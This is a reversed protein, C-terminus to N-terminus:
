RRGYSIGNLRDTLSQIGRRYRKWMATHSAGVLAGATRTDFGFKGVLLVAEYEKRNLQPLARDLDCYRVLWALRSRRDRMEEYGEVLAEVEEFSYNPWWKPMLRFRAAAFEFGTGVVIRSPQAPPPYIV